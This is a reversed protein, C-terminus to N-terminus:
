TGAWRRAARARERMEVAECLAFTVLDWYGLTACARANRIWTRALKYWSRVAEADLARLEKEILPNM